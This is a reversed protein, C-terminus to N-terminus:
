KKMLGALIFPLGTVLGFHIYSNPGTGVATVFHLASFLWIVGILTPVGMKEQQGMVFMTAGYVVLWFSLVLPTLQAPTFGAPFVAGLYPGLYSIAFTSIVVFPTALMWLEKVGAPPKPMEGNGILKLLIAFIIVGALWAAGGLPAAYGNQFAWFVVFIVLGLVAQRVDM